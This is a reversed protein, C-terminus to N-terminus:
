DGALTRFDRILGAVGAEELFTYDDPIVHASVYVNKFLKTLSAIINLDVPTKNRHSGLDMFIVTDLGKFCKIIEALKEISMESIGYDPSIIGDDYDISFIVKDSLEAAEALEDLSHLSKTGMVVYEADNVFLDMMDNVDQTGADLWTEKYAAIKKITNMNPSSRELGDIDLIFIVDGSLEQIVNVPSRLLGNQTRLYEYRGREVVAIHNHMISIAPIIKMLRNIYGPIIFYELIFFPSCAM